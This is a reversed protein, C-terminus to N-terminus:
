SLTSAQNLWNEIIHQPYGRHFHATWPYAPRQTGDKLIIDSTNCLFKAPTGGVVTHPAVDRTVCSNAAVLAGESIKVGPLIVSRAAVAAYDAIDCGVAVASPPHPDNTLVVHPFLWVFNGIRSYQPVFVNSHFRVYDGIICTGQIDGLTGLQFNIGAQTKERVTVRHGTIFREGLTSGQYLISHSRILSKKGIILPQGEALPSPYGIECYGDIVTDSGIEVHDYITTYAGVSVREGLKANPSVLATPHIM